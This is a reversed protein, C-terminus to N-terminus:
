FCLKAETWQVNVQQILVTKKELEMMLFYKEFKLIQFLMQSAFVKQSNVTLSIQDDLHCLLEM